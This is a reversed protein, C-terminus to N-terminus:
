YQKNKTTSNIHLHGEKIPDAFLKDWYRDIQKVRNKHAIQNSALQKIKDSFRFAKVLAEITKIEQDGDDIFKKM